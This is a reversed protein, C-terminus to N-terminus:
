DGRLVEAPDIALARAAPLVSALLAVALFAVAVVVFTLPDRPSVAVLLPAVGPALLAALGLGVGTGVAAVVFGRRLVSGLLASPGGGLARRVGLQRRDRTVALQVVGYLGLSALLLAVLGMGGVLVLAVRQPFLAQRLVQRPTRLVPASRNPFLRGVVGTVGRASGLPDNARLLVADAERPAPHRAPLYVLPDPSPDQVIFRADGAVGVVRVIRGGVELTRGVSAAEGWRDTFARSVVAVGSGDRVEAATFPRGALLPVNLVELYGGGIRRVDVTWEERGPPPDVGPMRIAEPTRATELPLHEAWGVAQIGPLAAVEDLLRGGSSAATGM